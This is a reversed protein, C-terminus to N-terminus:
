LTELYDRLSETAKELTADICIPYSSKLGYSITFLDVMNEDAPKKWVRLRVEVDRKSM